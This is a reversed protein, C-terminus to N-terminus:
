ACTSIPGIRFNSHTGSHLDLCLIIIGCTLIIDIHISKYFVIGTYNHGYYYYLINQQDYACVVNNNKNTFPYIDPSFQEM